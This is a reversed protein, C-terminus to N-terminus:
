ALLKLILFVNAIAVTIIMVTMGIRIYSKFSIPYGHAAAIGSAVISASSGIITGNGGLGAGLTLAWVMPKLQLGGDPPVELLVPIFAATFPINDIFASGFASVWIILTVALMTNSGVVGFIAGSIGSIVGTIELSGVLIFLGVFFLLTSWEVKELVHVMKKGGVALFVVGGILAIAAPSVGIQSQLFLLIIVGIFIVSGSNFLFRDKIAESPKIPMVTEKPAPIKTVGSMKNYLLVQVILIVITIPALNIIFENFSLGFASAILIGPPDGILTAIGGTNAALIEGIIFIRPNIKLTEMIEITVAVMFLVTTVNDLFASLLGTMLSFIVMMRVPKLETLNALYIGLWRFFGAERLGGVIVMMGFLLLVVEFEVFELIHNTPVIGLLWTGVAGIVAAITRDRVGTVILAYVALFILIAILQSNQLIEIM